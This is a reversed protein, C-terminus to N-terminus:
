RPPTCAFPPFARGYIPGDLQLKGRVADTTGAIKWGLLEWGLRQAVIENVAYAALATDPALDAPLSFQSVDRRAQVLLNALEEQKGSISKVKTEGDRFCRPAGSSSPNFAKAPM